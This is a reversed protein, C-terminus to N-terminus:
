GSTCNLGLTSNDVNTCVADNTGEPSVVSFNSVHIDFCVDPSSCVVTAVDPEHTKSTVGDFNTFQIESITMNSPYQDCISANSVGYCQTLEIAWQDNDIHMGNYVINKVYGSGGGTGFAAGPPSGPWVKIRAGDSANSMHINYVEVNEVIDVEGLYQGLSGVSIGHSGNCYLNQVLIDTSNPKFAVCDDGNNIHSNQIVINTSRLTDWGDTNSPFISSNTSVATMHLGDYTVDSSNAIINFWNPSNVLNIDAITGGELGIVAFLIPRVISANTQLAQWWPQGQGDLTGGGYVNVDKGGIQFFSSQNQFAYKFSNGEWYVIDDTFKITGQIDIDVSKLFTMDLAKGITYVTGPKFVVTGGNNCKKLASLINQSDDRGYGNAKVDCTKKRPPSPKMPKFPKRPAYTIKPRGADVLALLLCGIALFALLKPHM